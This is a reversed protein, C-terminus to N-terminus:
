FRTLLRGSSDVHAERDDQLHPLGPELNEQPVPCAFREGAGPCQGTTHEHGALGELIRDPSM